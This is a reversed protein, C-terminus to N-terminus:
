SAAPDASWPPRLVFWAGGVRASRRLLLRLRWRRGGGVRRAIRRVRRHCGSRSAARGGIRLRGLLRRRLLRAAPRAAVGRGASRAGAGGSAGVTATVIDPPRGNSTCPRSARSKRRRRRRVFQRRLGFPLVSRTTAGLRTERDGPSPRHRRCLLPELIRRGPEPLISMRAARPSQLAVIPLVRDRSRDRASRERGHGAIVLDAQDTRVPLVRDDLGGHRLSEGRLTSNLSIVM